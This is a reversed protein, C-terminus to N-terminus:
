DDGTLDTAESDASTIETNIGNIQRISLAQSSDSYLVRELKAYTILNPKKKKTRLYTLLHNVIAISRGLQSEDPMGGEPIADKLKKELKHLKEIKQVVWDDKKTASKKSAVRKPANPNDKRIATDIDMITTAIWNRISDVNHQNKEGELNTIDKPSQDLSSYMAFMCVFIGCDNNNQQPVKLNKKYWGDINLETKTKDLYDAELWKQLIPVIDDDGTSKLSNYVIIKENKLDIVALVWHNKNINIPFILRDISRKVGYLKKHITQTYKQVESYQYTTETLKQYFNTRFFFSVPQNDVINNSRSFSKRSMNGGGIIDSWWEMFWNIIDDNLWSKPKLTSLTNSIIVSYGTQYVSDKPITSWDVLEQIQAKELILDLLEQKQAKELILASPKLGDKYYARTGVTLQEINTNSPTEDDDSLVVVVSLMIEDVRADFSKKLQIIASEKEKEDSTDDDIIATAEENLGAPTLETISAIQEANINHGGTQLEKLKDMKAQNLCTGSDWGGETMHNLLTDFTSDILQVVDKSTISQVLQDIVEQLKTNTNSAADSAQKNEVEVTKRKRTTLAASIRSQIDKDLTEFNEPTVTQKVWSKLPTIKMIKYINDINDNQIASEWQKMRFFDLTTIPADELKEKLKEKIGSLITTMEKYIRDNKAKSRKSINKTKSPISMKQVFEDLDHERLLKTFELLFTHIPSLDEKDTDVANPEQETSANDEEDFRIHKGLPIVQKREKKKHQQKGKKEPKSPCSLGMSQCVTKEMESFEEDTVEQTGGAIKQANRLASYAKFIGDRIDNTIQPKQPYEQAHIIRLMSQYVNKFDYNDDNAKRYVTDIYYYTNSTRYLNERYCKGSEQCMYQLLLKLASHWKNDEELESDALLESISANLDIAM